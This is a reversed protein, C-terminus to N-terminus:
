NSGLHPDNNQVWIRPATSSEYTASVCNSPNSSTSRRIGIKYTGPNGTFTASGLAGSAPSLLIKYNSSDKVLLIKTCYNASRTTVFTIQTAKNIVFNFDDIDYMAWDENAAGVLTVNTTTPVKTIATSKTLSGNFFCDGDARIVFDDFDGDGLIGVDDIALTNRYYYPPSYAQKITYYWYDLRVTFDDGTVTWGYHSNYTGIFYHSGEIWYNGWGMLPLLSPNLTYNDGNKYRGYPFIYTNEYAVAGETTNWIYPTGSYNGPPWNNDRGTSSTKNYLTTDWKVFTSYQWYFSSGGVSLGFRYLEVRHNPDYRESLGKQLTANLLATSAGM